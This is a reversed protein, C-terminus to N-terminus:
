NRRKKKFFFVFIQTVPVQNLTQPQILSSFSEFNLAKKLVAFLIFINKHIFLQVDRVQCASIPKFYCSFTRENCDTPSAWLWQQDERIVLTRNTVFAATIAVELWHLESGLGVDTWHAYLLLKAQQCDVNFQLQNIQEHFL